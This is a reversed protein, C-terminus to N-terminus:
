KGEKLAKIEKQMKTILRHQANLRNLLNEPSAVKKIDRQARDQAEAAERAEKLDADIRDFNGKSPTVVKESSVIKGSQDKIQPRSVPTRSNIPISAKPTFTTPRQEESVEVSKNSNKNAPTVAEVKTSKSVTEGAILAELEAPTFQDSISM